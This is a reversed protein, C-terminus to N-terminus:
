IQFIFLLISHVKIVAQNHADANVRDRITSAMEKSRCKQIIHDWVSLMEGHCLMSINEKKLGPGLYGIEKLCKTIERELDFNLAGLM